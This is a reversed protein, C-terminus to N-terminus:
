FCRLVKVMQVHYWSAKLLNPFFLNKDIKAWMFIQHVSSRGTNQTVSVIILFIMLGHCFIIDKGTANLFSLTVEKTTTM